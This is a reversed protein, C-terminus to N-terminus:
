FQQKRSLVIQKLHFLKKRVYQWLEQRLARRHRSLPEVNSSKCGYSPLLRAGVPVFAFSCFHEHLCTQAKVRTLIVTPYIQKDNEVAKRKNLRPEWMELWVCMHKIKLNWQLRKGCRMRRQVLSSFYVSIFLLNSYFQSCIRRFLSVICWM